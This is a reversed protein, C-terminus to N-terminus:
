NRQMGKGRGNDWSVIGATCPTPPQRPKGTDRFESMKQKERPNKEDLEGLAEPVPGSSEPYCGRLALAYELESLCATMGYATRSDVYLPAKTRAGTCTRKMEWFRATRMKFHPNVFHRQRNKFTLVSLPSSLGKFFPVTKFIFIKLHGEM